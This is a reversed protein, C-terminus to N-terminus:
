LYSHHPPGRPSYSTFYAQQCLVETRPLAVTQFPLLCSLLAQANNCSSSKLAGHWLCMMCKHHKKSLFSDSPTTIRKEDQKNHSCVGCMCEHGCIHIHDHTHFFPLNSCVLVWFYIFLALLALHRKISARMKVYEGAPNLRM